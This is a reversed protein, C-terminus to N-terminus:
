SGLPIELNDWILQFYDGFETTKRRKLLDQTSPMEIPIDMKIKGPRRTMVLVRDSITIAEGIDHTIFIVTKEQERLINYIDQQLILRTQYDLSSFPEDLLLIEPDIAMTRALAVRQRMGGSLQWPYKHHFEGLGYRDLLYNAKEMREGKPVGRIKQGLEVNQAVSKWPLLLDKQLMFGVKESPGSVREGDLLVQGKTPFGLGAVLSLITSKGCGSPGVLGVIEKDRVQFTTGELAVM